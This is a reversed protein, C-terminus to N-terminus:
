SKDANIITLSTNVQQQLLSSQAFIILKISDLNKVIQM